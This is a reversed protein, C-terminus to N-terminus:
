EGALMAAVLADLQRHRDRAYERAVDVCDIGQAGADNLLRGWAEYTPDHRTVVGWQFGPDDPDLYAAGVLREQLTRIRTCDRKAALATLSTLGRETATPEQDGAPM